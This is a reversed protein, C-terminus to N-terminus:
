FDSRLFWLEGVSVGVMLRLTNDKIVSAFSSTNFSYQVGLDIFNAPSLPISIGAGTSFRYSAEGALLYPLKEYSVGFRYSLEPTYVTARAMPNYEIGASIKFSGTLTQPAINTMSFDGWSQTLYDAFVKTRANLKVSIGAFMRAPIVTELDGKAITDHFGFNNVTFTSFDGKLTSKISYGASVRIDDLGSIGFYDNLNASLIGFTGSFGKFNQQKAYIGDVVNSSFFKATSEYEYHGMMFDASAGINWGFPLRYSSGMFIKTIGGDYYYEEKVAGPILSGGTSISGDRSGEFSVDSYKNVGFVLGVGYEQSLPFGINFGPFYGSSYYSNRSPDKVFSAELVQGFDARTLVFSGYSAPNLLNIRDEDYNATGLEGFSLDRATTGYIVTGAGFRSYVTNVQASTVFTFLVLFLLISRRM